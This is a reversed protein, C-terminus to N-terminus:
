SKVHNNSHKIDPFQAACNPVKCFYQKVKNNPQGNWTSEIVETKVKRGLLPGSYVALVPPKQDKDKPDSPPKFEGPIDGGGAPNPTMALGTGHVFDQIFNAMAENITDFVRPNKRDTIGEPELEIKMNWNGPKDKVQVLKISRVFMEYVGGPIPQLGKLQDKNFGVKGTFAGAQSPKQEGQPNQNTAGPLQPANPNTSM